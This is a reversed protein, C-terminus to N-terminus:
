KESEYLSEPPGLYSVPYTNGKKYILIREIILGAELAAIDIEQVGQDFQLSTETKRINDLVGRCWRSDSHFAVFDAPVVTMIKQGSEPKGLMFCLPQNARTPNVPTTWVEVTYDGAEELFFRYALV